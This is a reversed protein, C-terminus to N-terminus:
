SGLCDRRPVTGQTRIFCAKQSEVFAEAFSIVQLEVRASAKSTLEVVDFKIACMEGECVMTKGSQKVSDKLLSVVSRLGDRRGLRELRREEIRMKKKPAVLIARNRLRRM